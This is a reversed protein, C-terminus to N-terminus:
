GYNNFNNEIIISNIKNQNVYKSISISGRDTNKEHIKKEEVEKIKKEENRKEAAKKEAKKREQAKREANERAIRGDPDNTSGSTASINGNEDISFTAYTVIPAGPMRGVSDKLSKICEPLVRLNEELYRAKEPDKACREIFAPSVSVTTPISEMTSSTNLYSYKKLLVQTYEKVVGKSDSKATLSSGISRVAKPAFNSENVAEVKNDTEGEKSCKKTLSNTYTNMYSTYAGNIEMAM